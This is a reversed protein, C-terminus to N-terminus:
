FSNMTLLLVSISIFIIGTGLKIKGANDKLWASLQRDTVGAFFLIFVIILPVIFAVNYFILMMLAKLQVGQTNVIFLVTPLYTQGTCALELVSVLFGIMAAGLMYHQLKINKRIVTNIRMRINDNLKLVMGCAAVINLQKLNGNATLLSGFVYTTAIPIFGTMLLGFIYSIEQIRIAYAADTENFINKPYLMTMFETNYFFSGVAVTIALIFLLTFSLRAMQEVPQKFKIMRAFLPLLIV